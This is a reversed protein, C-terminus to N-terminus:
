LEDVDIFLSNNPHRGLPRHSYQNWAKFAARLLATQKPWRLEQTREFGGHLCHRMVFIKLHLLRPPAQPAMPCMVCCVRGDKGEYTCRHCIRIRLTWNCGMHPSASNGTLWGCMGCLRGQASNGELPLHRIWQWPLNIVEFAQFNVRRVAPWKVAALFQMTITALFGADPHRSQLFVPRRSTLLLDEHGSTGRRLHLWTLDM